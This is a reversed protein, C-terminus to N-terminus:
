IILLISSIFLIVSSILKLYKNNINKKKIITILIFLLIIKDILMLLIYIIIYIIQFLKPINELYLLENFIMYTDSSYTFKAITLLITIIIFISIKLYLKNDKKKNVLNYTTFLIIIISLIYKLNTFDIQINSIMVIFDIIFTVIIYTIGLIFMNKIDEEKLLMGILLLILLLNPLSFINIISLLLTNNIIDLDNTNVIGILPLKYQYNAYNKIYDDVCEQDENIKYSPLKVNTLYEGVRDTYGYNSYYEISAIFSRKSYETSYGYFYKDGIITFPVGLTSTNFLNTVENFLKSNNGESIEFKYIKINDYKNELEKLLKIEENCHKCSKSHFLYINVLNDEKASINPIFSLFLVIIFILKKMNGVEFKIKSLM